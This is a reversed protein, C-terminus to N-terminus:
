KLYRRKTQFVENCYYQLFCYLSKKNYPLYAIFVIAFITTFIDFIEPLSLFRNNKVPEFQTEKWRVMPLDTWRVTANIKEFRWRRGFLFLFVGFPIKRNKTVRQLNTADAKCIMTRRRRATPPLLGGSQQM